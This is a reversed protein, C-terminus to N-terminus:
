GLFNNRAKKLNKLFPKFLFSSKDLSCLNEFMLTTVSFAMIDRSIYQRMAVDTTGIIAQSIEFNEFLPLMEMCGSGFPVIVPTPDQPDHFYNAGIILASLQDPNVFFTITKLYEWQDEKLPGVLINPYKAKYPDSKKIWKDMLEHSDKLGEDDVLFKIFDKHSRSKIQWWWNGCGGCGHKEKTLHVTKGNLWDEYYQFVCARNGPTILPNFKEYDPADYVGILPINIDLSKILVQPNNM